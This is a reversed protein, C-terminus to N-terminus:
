EVDIEGTMTDYNSCHYKYIGPKTFTYNFSEGFQLEKAFLGDQSTVTHSSRTFGDNNEWILTTGPPVKTTEPYYSGGYAEPGQEEARGTEYNIKVTVSPPAATQNSTQQRSQQAATKGASAPQGTSCSAVILLMGVLLPVITSTTRITKDM